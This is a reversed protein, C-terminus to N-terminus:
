SPITEDTHILSIWGFARCYPIYWWTHDFLSELNSAFILTDALKGQSPASFNVQYGAEPEGKTAAKRVNILLRSALISHFVRQMETTIYYYPSNIEKLIIVANVLSISFMVAFYLVGDRYLTRVLPTSEYRWQHLGKYLSLILVILESIMVCFYTVFLKSGTSIPLCAVIHPAPSPIFTILAISKNVYYISLAVVATQQSTLIFLVLKNQEWIAYTRIVLVVESIVIGFTMSWAAISYSVHCSQYSANAAYHPNFDYWLLAIIDVLTSYRTLIYLAKGVSWRQFWIFFVEDGLNIVTDYLQLCMCALLTLKVNVSQSLLLSIESILASM